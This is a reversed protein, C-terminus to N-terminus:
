QGMVNMPLHHPEETQKALCMGAAVILEACVAFYLGVCLIVWLTGEGAWQSGPPVLVFFYLVFFLPIFARCFLSVFRFWSALADYTFALVAGLSVVFFALFYGGILARKGGQPILSAYIRIRTRDVGEIEMLFYVVIFLATLGAFWRTFKSEPHVSRLMAALALLHISAIWMRDLNNVMPRARGPLPIDNLSYLVLGLWALALIGALRLIQTSRTKSLWPTVILSLGMALGLLLLMKPILQETAFADYFFYSDGQIQALPLALTMFVTLLGLYFHAPNRVSKITAIFSM